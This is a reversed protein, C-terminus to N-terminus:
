RLLSLPSRAFRRVRNALLPKQQGSLDGSLPPRLTNSFEAGALHVEKRFHNRLQSKQKAQSSFQRIRARLCQQDRLRCASSQRSVGALPFNWSIEPSKGTVSLPAMKAQCGATHTSILTAACKKGLSPWVDLIWSTDRGAASQPRSPTRAFSASEM